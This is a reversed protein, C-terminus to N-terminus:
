ISFRLSIASLYSYGKKGPLGAARLAPLVAGHEGDGFCCQVLKCILECCRGLLKVADRGRGSYTKNECAVPFTVRQMKMSYRVITVTIAYDGKPKITTPCEVATLLHLKLVFHLFFLFVQM